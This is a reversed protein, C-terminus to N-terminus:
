KKEFDRRKFILINVCERRVRKAIVLQRLRSYKKFAVLIKKLRLLFRKLVGFLVFGEPLYIVDASRKERLGTQLM